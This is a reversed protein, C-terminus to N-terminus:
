YVIIKQDFQDNRNIAKVIYMGSTINPIDILIEPNTTTKNYILQGISNYLMVKTEEPLHSFRVTFKGNNPNPYVLMTQATEIEHETGTVIAAQKPQESQQAIIAPVAEMCYEGTTTIHAHVYSGEQAHFGPKFLISQGAIFNASGGSEVIVLTGDGAVTITNTANFCDEEGSTLNTSSIQTNTPVEGNQDTSIKFDDVAWYWGWSGTYNWKFRVQSEGELILTLDESYLAANFTSSTWTQLESWSSGNNTSYSFTASSGPYERFYHDFEVIIDSMGAFDFVPSILDSNQTNGSGFNDSDLIAFGNSSTTTKITRLGPNDFEWVQGNGELDDIEWCAPLNGNHEFTESYPFTTIPPIYEFTSSSMDNQPNEDASGNPNSTYAAFTHAGSSVMIQPLSINESDGGILSGTWNYTQAQQDDVQYNITVSTLLNTGYNTLKVEPVIQSSYISGVPNIISSIGVENEQLMAKSGSIVLSFGQAQALVGDHDVRITYTGPVPNVINILEVNDVNNESNSTAAASPNNRDLKYPYYTTNNGLVTLDLDNVLAPTSPDVVNDLATGAPDTWVITVILPETGDTTIDTTFVDGNNLSLEDIVNTEVADKTILQAAKQANLLGWGFKYDPGPYDGCEDATNIALAKLTAARMSTGGNNNQYHQQLLALTGAVNPSAMSTGNYSAYQSDNDSVSSYVGVGKGVIDPKIRGDDAPGWSSFSSMVVSTSGTYNAIENVAGVTLINKAVSQTGLCDYGDPAGDQPYDGDAPGEGRDNGASKVILYYPADYAIQDWDRTLYTYLGFWYDEQNSIAPDGAWVWSNNNDSWYWGMTIGYSHNSIQLGNAAANAMEAGDNTWEWAKLTAKPNMGKANSVVGEAILTGAVHTSHASNSSTGDMQTVRSTQSGGSTFEDHSLRVAGGDWVGLGTYGDGDVSLGLSGGTWLTNARTTAAAGLNTTIYYIPRNNRVDIMQIIRGNPLVQRVPINNRESFENVRVQREVWNSRLEDSFNRLKQVNTTQQSFLSTSIASLILIIAFRRINKQSIKM